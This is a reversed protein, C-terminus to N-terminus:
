RQFRFKFDLVQRVLSFLVDIQYSVRRLPVINTITILKKKKKKYLKRFKRTMIQKLRSPFRLVEVFRKTTITNNNKM